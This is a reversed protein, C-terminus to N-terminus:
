EEVTFDIISRVMPLEGRANLAPLKCPASSHLEPLQKAADCLGACEPIDFVAISTESCSKECLRRDDFHQVRAALMWSGVTVDENAFFRLMNSNLTALHEAARGSLVYITGWCHTFYSSSGLVAHQPEYWRFSKSTYVQGTKMCGIYDATKDKWQRVAVPVRDVRLYVDDDAKIIYEPDYLNIVTRFFMLTKNTLNMYDEQLPLRLFGGYNAEEKAIDAEAAANSSHGIIFRM